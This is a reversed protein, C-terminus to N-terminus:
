KRSRRWERLVGEDDGTEKAERVRARDEELHGTEEGLHQAKRRSIWLVLAGILSVAAVIGAKIWGWWSERGM